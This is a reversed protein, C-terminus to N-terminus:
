ISISDDKKLYVYAKKGRSTTGKIGRRNRRVQKTPVNVTRIKQPEVKYISRIAFDIDKKGADIDVNFVYVNYQSQLTAKETVRPSRLVEEVNFGDMTKRILDDGLPSSKMLTKKTTKKEEERKKPSFIAM